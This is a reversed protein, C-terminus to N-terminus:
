LKRVSEDETIQSPFVCYTEKRQRRGGAAQQKDRLVNGEGISLTVAIDTKRLYQASGMASVRVSGHHPAMEIRVLIIRVKNSVLLRWKHSARVLM